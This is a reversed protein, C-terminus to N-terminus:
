FERRSAQTKKIIEMVVGQIKCDKVIIDKYKENEPHLIVRRYKRDDYFTKLTNGEGEVYAVVIDGNHAYEQKRIVVLDGSDIGAGTMSDGYTRLIYLEGRGFIDIPLNVYTEINEKELMMQGCPIAGIMGARNYGTMDDNIRETIIGRRDYDIVGEDRLAALSYQVTSKPLSLAESLERLSPTLSYQDYSEDSFKLIDNKKRECDEARM